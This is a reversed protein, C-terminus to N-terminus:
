EEDIVVECEYATQWIKEDDVFSSEKSWTFGNTKLTNEISSELSFDKEATYLEINLVEINVYNQNDSKFDDDRSFFWCVFPAEQPTDDNFQYYACPLNFSQIM